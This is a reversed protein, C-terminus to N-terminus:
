KSKKILKKEEDMNGEGTKRTGKQRSIDNENDAGLKDEEASSQCGSLLSFM